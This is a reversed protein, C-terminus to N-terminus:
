FVQTRTNTDPHRNETLSFIISFASEVKDPSLIIKKRRDSTIDTMSTNWAPHVLKIDSM